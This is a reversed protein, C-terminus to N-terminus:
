AAPTPAPAAPAVPAPTVPTPVVVPFLGKLTDLVTQLSVVSGKLGDIVGAETSEKAVLEAHTKTLADMKDQVVKVAETLSAADAAQSDSLAKDDIVKQDALAKKVATDIDAPTLTGDATHQELASEDWVKGMQETLAALEAAQVAAIAASIVDAKAM